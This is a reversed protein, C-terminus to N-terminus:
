TGIFMKFYRYATDDWFDRGQPTNYWLIMSTITKFINGQAACEKQAELTKQTGIRSAIIFDGFFKENKFFRCMKNNEEFIKIM